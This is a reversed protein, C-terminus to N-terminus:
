SWPDRTTTPESPVTYTRQSPEVRRAVNLPMQIAFDPSPPTAQLLGTWTAGRASMMGGKLVTNRTFLKGAASMAGSPVSYAAHDESTFFSAVVYLASGTQANKM